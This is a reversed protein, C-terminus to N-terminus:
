GPNNLEPNTRVKFNVFKCLSQFSPKAFQTFNEQPLFAGLLAVKMGLVALDM